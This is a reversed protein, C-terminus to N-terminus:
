IELRLFWMTRKFPFGDSWVVDRRLHFLWTLGDETVEWSQALNPEVQLTVGNVRTLGEFILNTVATTSTEKAIIANFSKPDSSTSLVLQGGYQTSAPNEAKALACSFFFLVLFTLNQKLFSFRSFNNFRIPLRHSRLRIKTRM